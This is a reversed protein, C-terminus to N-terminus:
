FKGTCIYTITTTYVGARLNPPVNVIYSVTFRRVLSVNPASAIIDGDQYKFKNPTDYGPAVVANVYSGDPNGGINPASNSVLNIGFQSNGPASLTPATLPNIVNTGAEMTPGNATIVYGGSANTGAAMQSTATLTKNASLTGMDTFNGGQEDTCDPSVQHAVCFYLMPPVQAAISVGGNVGTVVSGIDISTGSANSSSYDSLRISFPKDLTPNVVGTFTYTSLTNGVASSPRSIILHNPTAKTLTFGTEGSQDTLQVQSVDLGAPAVCPDTPIPDYCFLFDISGVPQSVTNYTFSFQYKTTAGPNPNYVLVSRNILRTVASAQGAFIFLSCLLLAVTELMTGHHPQWRVFLRHLKHM